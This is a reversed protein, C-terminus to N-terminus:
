FFCFAETHLHFLIFITTYSYTLELPLPIPVGALSFQAFARHGMSGFFACTALTLPSTLQFQLPTSALHWLAECYIDLTRVRDSSSHAAMAEKLCLFLSFILCSNQFQELPDILCIQPPPRTLLFLFLFSSPIARTWIPTLCCCHPLPPKLLMHTPLSCFHHPKTMLDSSFGYYCLQPAKQM